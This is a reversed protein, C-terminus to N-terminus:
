LIIGFNIGFRVDNGSISFQPAIRLSQYMINLEISSVTAYPTKINDVNPQSFFSFVPTFSSHLTMQNRMAIRAGYTFFQEEEILSVGMFLPFMFTTKGNELKLPDLSVNFSFYGKTNKVIINNSQFITRNVGVSFVGDFTYNAGLNFSLPDNTIETLVGLSGSFGNNGKKFLYNQGLATSISVLFISIFLLANKM